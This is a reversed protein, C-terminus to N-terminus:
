QDNYEKEQLLEDIRNSLKGVHETVKFPNRVSKVNGKYLVAESEPVIPQNRVARTLLKIKVCYREDEDRWVDSVVKGIAYVGSDLEEDQKGIYLLVIDDPLM